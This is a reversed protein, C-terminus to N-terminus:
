SLIRLAALFYIRTAALLAEVSVREDPQHAMGPKGPGCIMLPADLAPALLAGDTYYPAGLLPSPAGCVEALAANFQQVAPNQPNATVAPRDNLVRVSARFGTIRQALNDLLAQVQQLMEGHTQGPVTRLDVAMTCHDPVVCPITGGQIAGVNLTMEGLLPHPHHPFPTHQLEDLLSVMMLIANRGLHPMSGHATQGYTTFELWFAGREAIYLQNATPEAVCVAQVAGIEPRKLLEEAGINDVEEGASLALYLDGQLPLGSLALSRAACVVAALGSKMDAAGLGYIDDDVWDADFPGHTWGQTGPAVTDLHASYLLGPKDGSGPLRALLSARTASHPVLVAALGSDVLYDCLYEAMEREDGPPNVTPFSILQQCLEIVEYDRVYTLPNEAM